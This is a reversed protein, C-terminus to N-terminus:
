LEDRPKAAGDSAADHARAAASLSREIENSREDYTSWRKGVIRHAQNLKPEKTLPNNCLDVTKAAPKSANGCWTECWLWEEPLSHIPVVHQAYNPLDQDLNALSNPDKSLSDYFIRYQDGYARRRFKHLDVVFLALIHYPHGRLHDKWYGHAFFRFGTTDPNADRNCFPTMAVATRPPMKLDWLEGVDANIVQDADIYIIRKLHLPFMVDLFLIKYGWIIRQKNTQKHLWTPWQYQVLEYDFGVEKAMHPLFGMFAPSLFNKLLWFKVKRTTRDVVSQMMIKLFREYLHGSALSFVNVVDDDAASGASGFAWKKSVLLTAHLGTFDSVLLRIARRPQLGAVDIHGRGGLLATAHGAAVLKADSHISFVESSPGPALSLLWAGPMAKLQWYGLNSMVLTDTSHPAAPSTGLLLQLGNPPEHKRFDQCSGTILVSVLEYRAYLTRREGLEALRLNDMDYAAENVQVLWAEPADLHLTLVQPTKLRAFRAMDATPALSRGDADFKPTLSVVYRYFDELPFETIATDPNLHLTVTCGLAVHLEMMLPALRQAAKSLPDLIAVLEMAAGVGEGPIRVCAAGCPLDDPQLQVKRDKGADRALARKAVSTLQVVAHMLVDSRWRAAGGEVSADKDHSVTLQSILHAAGEARQRLEYEELLAVDVADLPAGGTLLVLRGNTILAGAGAGLGLTAAYAAHAGLDVAPGGRAKAPLVASALASSISSAGPALSAAHLLAVLAKLPAYTSGDFARVLATWAAAAAPACAEHSAATPNHLLGLRSRGNPSAELASLTGALVSLHAPQCLDIVLLHSVSHLLAPDIAGADADAGAGGEEEGAGFMQEDGFEDDAAAMSDTEAVAAGDKPAAEAVAAEDKPAAISALWAVSALAAAPTLPAVEIDDIPLLLAKSYRPFALGAKIIAAAKDTTEDTLVRKSILSSVFRHEANLAMMVEQEYNQTVPTLVGNTLIAPAAGLGKDRLFRSGGAALEDFDTITGQVIGQYVTLRDLQEGLKRPYAQEFAKALHHEELEDYGGGGFFGMMMQMRNENVASLFKLSAQTGAKKKLFLFLKTLLLGLRQAEDINVRTMARLQPDFQQYKKDKVVDNIFLVAEHSPNIRLSAQPPPLSVLRSITAAPLELSSLADITHLESQITNMLGYFDNDTIPLALGNLFAGNYGPGFYTQQSARVGVSLEQSVKLKSLKGSAFPFNQCVDRLAKLPDSAALVRTAAQLGLDQMAWAKLKTSAETEQALLTGQLAQLQEALEPRRSALTGFFFGGVDAEDEAEGEAAEDDDGEIGGLDQVAKDDLVKYEMNKIALQVGYGQLSQARAGPAARVQPRYVYVIAGERARQTLTAHAARFAASGLPAYLVVMPATGGGVSGFVHDVALPTVEATEREELSEPVSCGGALVADVLAPAPESASLAQVRGCARVWGDASDMGHEQEERTQLQRFMEVRASFIHAALYGRLLKLGLPSLLKAAALEVAALHAEDSGGEPPVYTEAFTWFLQSGEVALFEAAEAAIPTEPWRATLSIDINKPTLTDEAAALGLLTVILASVAM